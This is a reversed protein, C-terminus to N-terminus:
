QFRAMNIIIWRINQWAAMKFSLIEAELHASQVWDKVFKTPWLNCVVFEAMILIVNGYCVLHSSITKWKYCAKWSLKCMALRIEAELQVIVFIWVAIIGPIRIPVNPGTKTMHFQLFTDKEMFLPHICTSNLPLITCYAEMRYLKCMNQHLHCSSSCPKTYVTQRYDQLGFPKDMTMSPSSWQYVSLSIQVVIGPYCFNM